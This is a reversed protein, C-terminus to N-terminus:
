ELYVCCAIASIFNTTDNDGIFNFDYKLGELPTLGRLTDYISNGFSGNTLTADTVMQKGDSSISIVNFTHSTGGAGRFTINASDGISFGEAFFSGSFLTITNNNTIDYKVIDFRWSIQVDIEAKIREGLNGKLHTGFDGTNQDFLPGNKIESFYKVSIPTLQIAM